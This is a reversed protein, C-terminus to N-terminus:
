AYVRVRLVMTNLGFFQLRRQFENATENHLFLQYWKERQFVLRGAFFISRRCTSAIDLCSKDAEDLMETATEM